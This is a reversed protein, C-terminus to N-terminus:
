HRRWVNVLAKLRMSVWNTMIAPTLPAALCHAGNDGHIIGEVLHQGNEFKLVPGGSMTKRSSHLPYVLPNGDQWQNIHVQSYVVGGEGPRVLRDDEQRSLYGTVRRLNLGEFGGPTGITLTSIRDDLSEEFTCVAIDSTVAGWTYSPYVAYSKVKYRLTENEVKFYVKADNYKEGNTFTLLHAATLAHFPGARFATGFSRGTIQTMGFDQGKQWKIVLQGVGTYPSELPAPFLPM